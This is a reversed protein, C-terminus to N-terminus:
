RTLQQCVYGSFFFGGGGGAGGRRSLPPPPPGGPYWRVKRTRPHDYPLYMIGRTLCNQPYFSRYRGTHEGYGHFVLIAKNHERSPHNIIPLWRAGMAMTVSSEYLTM